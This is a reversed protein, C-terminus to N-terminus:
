DFRAMEYEDDHEAVRDEEVRGADNSDNEECVEEGVCESRDMWFTKIRENRVTLMM